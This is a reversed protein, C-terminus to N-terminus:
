DTKAYSVSQFLNLISTFNHNKMVQDHAMKQLYSNIKQMDSVMLNHTHSFTGVPQLLVWYVEGRNSAAFFQAKLHTNCTFGKCLTKFYRKELNKSNKSNKLKHTICNFCCNYTTTMITGNNNLCSKNKVSWINNILSWLTDYEATTM